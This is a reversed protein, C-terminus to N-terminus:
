NITASPLHNIELNKCYEHDLLVLENMFLGHTCWDEQSSAVWLM